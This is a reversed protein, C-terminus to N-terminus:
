ESVPDLVQPPLPWSALRGAVVVRNLGYVAAAGVLAGVLGGIGPSGDELQGGFVAWWLNQIAVSGLLATGLAGAVALGYRWKSAASVDSSSADPRPLRRIAERGVAFLLPGCIVAVAFAVSGVFIWM